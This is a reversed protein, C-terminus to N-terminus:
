LRGLNRIRRNCYQTLLVQHVQQLHALTCVKIRSTISREDAEQEISSSAAPFHLPHPRVRDIQLMCFREDRPLGAGPTYGQASLGANCNVSIQADASTMAASTMAASTM